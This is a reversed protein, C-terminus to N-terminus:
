VLVQVTASHDDQTAVKLPSRLALHAKIGLPNNARLFNNDM